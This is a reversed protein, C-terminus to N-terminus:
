KWGLGAGMGGEVEGGGLGGGTGGGDSGGSGRAREKLGRQGNEGRGWIGWTAGLQHIGYPADTFATCRNTYQVFTAVFHTLTTERSTLNKAALSTTSYKRSPPHPLFPLSNLVM